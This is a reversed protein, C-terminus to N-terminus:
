SLWGAAAFRGDCLGVVVAAVLEVLGVCVSACARQLALMLPLSAARESTCTPSTSPTAARRRLGAAMHRPRAAAGRWTGVLPSQRCTRAVVVAAAVAVARCARRCLRGTTVAPAM